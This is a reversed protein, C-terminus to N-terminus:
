ASPTELTNIGYAITAGFEYRKIFLGIVLITCTTTMKAFALKVTTCTAVTPRSVICLLRLQERWHALTSALTHARHIGSYDVEMVVPQRTLIRWVTRM